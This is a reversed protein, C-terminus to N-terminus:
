PGDPPPAPAPTITDGPLTAPIGEGAPWSVMQAANGDYGDASALILHGAADIEIREMRAARAIPVDIKTGPLPRFGEPLPGADPDTWGSAATGNISFFVTFGVRRVMVRVATSWGNILGGTIDRWGSDYNGVIWATGDFLEVLHDTVNPRTSRVQSPGPPGPVPFPAVTTGDVTVPQLDLLDVPGPGPVHVVYNLVWGGAGTIDERVEYLVPGDTHWDPDDSALVHLSVSGDEDL